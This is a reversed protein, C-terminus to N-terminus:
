FLQFLGCQVVMLRPILRRREMFYLRRFGVIGGAFFGGIAQNYADEKERLNAAAIRTFEFTGGIAATPWDAHGLMWPSIVRGFMGITGGTRTIVGWGTVNQRTLTNQVASLFLGAGGLIMTSRAAASIADKPQYIPRDESAM